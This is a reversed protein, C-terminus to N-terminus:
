TMTGVPEGDPTSGLVLDRETSWRFEESEPSFFLDPDSLELSAAVAADPDDVGFWLGRLTARVFDTAASPHDAAFGQNTAIVGFTAPIDYDAPDFVRYEYGQDDLQRPENSKYVPLSEIETEFLLVPNFDVEIQTIDG